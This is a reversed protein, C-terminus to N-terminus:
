NFLRNNKLDYIYNVSNEEKYITFHLLNGERYFNLSEREKEIQYNYFTDLKILLYSKLNKDLIDIKRDKFVLITNDAAYLYYYSSNNIPLETDYSAIYYKNDEVYAYKEDDIIIVNEYTPRIDIGKENNIIGVRGNEAYALYGNKYDVIKDYELNVLIENNLNVVGYKNEDNKVILDDSTFIYKIYNDSIIKNGLYDFVYEKQDDALILLNDNKEKIYPCIKENCCITLKELRSCFFM